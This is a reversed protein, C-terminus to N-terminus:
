FGLEGDDQPLGLAFFQKKIFKNEDIYKGEKFEVLAPAANKQLKKWREDAKVIEKWSYPNPVGLRNIHETFRAMRRYKEERSPECDLERKHFILM